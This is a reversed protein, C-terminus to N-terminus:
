HLQKCIMVRLRKVKFLEFLLRRQNRNLKELKNHAKMNSNADLEITSLFEKIKEKVLRRRMENGYVVIYLNPIVGGDDLLSLETCDMTGKGAM